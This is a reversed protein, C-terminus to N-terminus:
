GRKDGDLKRLLDQFMDPLPEEVVSSYLKQLGQAWDPQHRAKRAGGSTRADIKGVPSRVKKDGGTMPNGGFNWVRLTTLIGNPLSRIAPGTTEFWRDFGTPTKRQPYSASRDKPPKIPM